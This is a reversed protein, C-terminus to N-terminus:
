RRNHRRTSSFLLFLISLFSIPDHAIHFMLVQFNTGRGGGKEDQQALKNDMCKCKFKLSGFLAGYTTPNGGGVGGGGGVCVCKFHVQKMLTIKHLDVSVFFCGFLSHVVYKYLVM